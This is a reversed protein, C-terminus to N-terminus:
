GDNHRFYKSGLRERINEEDTNENEKRLELIDAM